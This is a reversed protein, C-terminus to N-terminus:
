TAYVGFFLRLLLDVMMLDSSGLIWKGGGICCEVFRAIGAEEGLPDKTFEEILVKPCDRSAKISLNVKSNL